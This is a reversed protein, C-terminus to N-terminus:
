SGPTKSPSDDKDLIEFLASAKALRRKGSVLHLRMLNPLYKMLEGAVQDSDLSPNRMFDHDTIHVRVTGIPDHFFVKICPGPEHGSLIHQFSARFCEVMQALPGLSELTKRCGVAVARVSEETLLQGNDDYLDLHLKADMLSSRTNPACCRNDM